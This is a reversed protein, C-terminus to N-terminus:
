DGEKGTGRWVGTRQLTHVADSCGRADKIAHVGSVSRYVLDDTRQDSLQAKPACISSLARCREMKAVIEPTNTYDVVPEYQIACMLDTFDFSHLESDPNFRFYKDRRTFPFLKAIARFTSLLPSV